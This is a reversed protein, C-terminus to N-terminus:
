ESFKPPEGIATLLDVACNATCFAGHEVLRRGMPDATRDACEFKRMAQAHWKMALERLVKKQDRKKM